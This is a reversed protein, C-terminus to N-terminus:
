NPNEKAYTERIFFSAILGVALVGVLLLMSHYYTQASYVHAGDVIKGNWSKDMLRGFIPEFVLPAGMILVSSLGMGTGTMMKPNSEAIVPYGITQASTFLGLGFFLLLLTTLSLNPMYVIALMAPLSIVGFVIMPLKRLALRDSLAGILPCGIMSGFFIMSTVYSAQMLTLHHVATLYLSGWLGGLLMLPVNLFSTYFGCFWNQPNSLAAAVSSKLGLTKLEHKQAAFFSEKGPPYDRVLMFIIGIILLGLGAVIELAERWGLQKTLWALPTQAVMGGFFAMTVILGVIMAMSRAPFWRSAIRVCGLLCFASGFGAAFHCLGAIWISHSLGFIATTIVAVWMAILIVKRPSFRDLIMGAPFLLMVDALFYGSSVYGLTTASIKFESLLYPSITNFMQMQIFEYFFFLSASFVVIWPLYRPVAVAYQESEIAPNMINM